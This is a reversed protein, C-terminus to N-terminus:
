ADEKVWNKVEGRDDARFGTDIETGSPLRWRVAIIGDHTLAKGTIAREGRIALISEDPIWIPGIGSRQVMIGEPYRTVAGKARFGLGAAAIRDNWNPAVTSGVYLGKTPGALVPGVTDPLPPLNGILEAQREIRHRWGRLIQRIFFGILVVVVAALVLSGILTADNM